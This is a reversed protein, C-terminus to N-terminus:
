KLVEQGGSLVMCDVIEIEDSKKVGSFFM